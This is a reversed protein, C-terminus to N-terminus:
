AARTTIFPGDATMNEVAFEIEYDRAWKVAAELGDRIDVIIERGERRSRGDWVRFRKGCYHLDLTGYERSVEVLAGPLRRHLVETVRRAISEAMQRRPLDYLKM